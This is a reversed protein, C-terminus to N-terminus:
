PRSYLEHRGHHAEQSTEGPHDLRFHRDFAIQGDVSLLVTTVLKTIEAPSMPYSDSPRRKAMEPRLEFFSEEMENTVFTRLM